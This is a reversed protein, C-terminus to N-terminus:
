VGTGGFAKVIHQSLSDAIPNVSEPNRHLLCAAKPLPPFGEEETLMRMGAPMISRSIATVALGANIAA